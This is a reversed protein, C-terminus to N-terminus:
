GVRRSEATAQNRRMWAFIFEAADTIDAEIAAAASASNRRALADVVAEHHGSAISDGALLEVTNLLPGTQLWVSEIMSLLMPRDAARYIRFHLQQNLELYSAQDKAAALERLTSRLIAIERADIREAARSAALTELQIRIECIERFTREDLVPVIVSRNPLNVLAREVVLRRVADRVPMESTGVAAAMTRLTVVMGPPFRGSMIARRIEEYVREHLTDRDIRKLGTQTM